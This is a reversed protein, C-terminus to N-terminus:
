VTSPRLRIDHIDPFTEDLYVMIENSETHTIGDHVLAPRALNKSGVIEGNWELGKEELCARVQSLLLYIFKILEYFMAARLVFQAM